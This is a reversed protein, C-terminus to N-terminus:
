SVFGCALAKGVSDSRARRSTTSAPSGPQTHSGSSNVPGAPISASSSGGSSRAARIATARSTHADQGTRSAHRAYVSRVRGAAPTHAPNVGSSIAARTAAAFRGARGRRWVASRGTLASGPRPQRPPTIFWGPVGGPVRGRRQGREARHPGRIEAGVGAALEVGAGDAADQAPVRRAAARREAGGLVEGQNVPQM